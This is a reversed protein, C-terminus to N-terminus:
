PGVAAKIKQELAALDTTGATAHLVKGKGDLLVHTPTARVGLAKALAGKGEAETGDILCPLGAHEGAFRQVRPLLRDSDVNVSYTTLGKDRYRAALEEVQPFEERCPKCFLSWFVLLSPRGKALSVEEGQISRSRLDAVAAGQEALSAGAPAFVTVGGRSALTVDQEGERGLLRRIKSEFGDEDGPRYGEQYLRIWGSRDIIVTVPLLEVKYANVIEQRADRVIPYPPHIGARELFASIRKQSFVDTNVSVVALGEAAYRRHLEEIHPM